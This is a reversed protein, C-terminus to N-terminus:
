PVDGIGNPVAIARRGSPYLPLEYADNTYKESGTQSHDNIERRLMLAFPNM